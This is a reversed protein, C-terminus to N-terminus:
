PELIILQGGGSPIDLELNMEANLMVKKIEYEDPRNMWDTGTADKCIEATYLQKTGLIKNLPVSLHVEQAGAIAGIFWRSGSRRAVVCYKGPYIALTRSEDIDATFKRFFEFADAKIEYAEPIDAAMQMPSYLIVWLAMQHCLTSHVRTKMGPKEQGNWPTYSKRLRFLVDFIGPTYDLPGALARTVPLITHHSAPNGESWAEWEMGRVGEGTLLNPWTRSLGTPKICEHVDLCIGYSAAKATVRAYHNVMYQGFHYEGAPRIAGAYGTKVYRIGLRRCLAFASDMVKEYAPIDGGTEHHGILQIGKHTAYGAVRNLDFDSAPTQQDFADEKGWNEWGTNWGEFLVGSIGNKAAFDILGLANETTSGHQKGSTWTHTGLHMQWWIGVYKIPKICAKDPFTDPKNLLTIMRNDALIEPTKALMIVRMPTSFPLTVRAAIGDAGPVLKTFYNGDGKSKLTMAPYNVLAAEHISMWNGGPTKLTLPTNVWAANRIKGETFLQEQTHYDAMSWWCDSGPNVHIESLEDTILILSAPTDSEIQTYFAVGEDSVIFHYTVSFNRLSKDRFKKRVETYTYDVKKTTGWHLNTNDTLIKTDSERFELRRGITDGSALVFGGPRGGACKESNLYVSYSLEGSTSLSTVLVIQKDPSKVTDSESAWTLTANFFFVLLPLYRM